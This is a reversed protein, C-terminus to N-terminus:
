AEFHARGALLFHVHQIRVQQCAGFIHALQAPRHPRLAYAHFGGERVSILGLSRAVELHSEARSPLTVAGLFFQKSEKSRQLFFGRMLLM